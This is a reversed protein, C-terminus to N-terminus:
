VNPIMEVGAFANNDHLQIYSFPSLLMPDASCHILCPVYQNGNAAFTEKHKKQVDSLEDELNIM